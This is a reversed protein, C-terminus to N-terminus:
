GIRTPPPDIPDGDGVYIWEVGNWNWDPSIDASAKAPVTLFLTAIFLLVFLKKM